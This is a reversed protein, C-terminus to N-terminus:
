YVPVTLCNLNLHVVKYYLANLYILSMTVLSKRRNYDFKMLIEVYLHIHSIILCAHEISLFYFLNIKHDM